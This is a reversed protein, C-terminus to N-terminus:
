KRYQLYYEAFLPCNASKLTIIPVVDSLTEWAENEGNFNTIQQALGLAIEIRTSVHGGIKKAFKSVYKEDRYVWQKEPILLYFRKYRESNKEKAGEIFAELILKRIEEQKNNSRKELFLFMNIKAVEVKLCKGDTLKEVVQFTDRGSFSENLFRLLQEVKEDTLKKAVEKEFIAKNPLEVIQEKTYNREEKMM